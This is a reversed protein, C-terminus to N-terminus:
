PAILMQKAIQSSMQSLNGCIQVSRRLLPQVRVFLLQWETEAGGGNRESVLLLRQSAM